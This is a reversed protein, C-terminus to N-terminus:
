KSKGLESLYRFLDRLDARPLPDVLGAPMLSGIMKTSASDAAAFQTEAGTGPDRVTTGKADRAVIYGIAVKGDKGTVEMAEYSEKIERQPELVTGIIFDLPQGSGIADLAPGITGGKGDISHCTICALEARQFIAAGRKADGNARVEAVLGAVYEPTAKLLSNGKLPPPPAVAPASKKAVVPPALPEQLVKLRERWEPKWDAAGKALLARVHPELVAIATRAGLELFKDHEPNPASLVIPVCEPSPLNGAAVVAALRVRPHPDHALDVLMEMARPETAVWRALLSAAYARANPERAKALKALLAREPKGHAEFVGIAEWWAHESKSDDPDLRPWWAWLEKVVEDTPRDALERKTQERVWREPSRLNELLEAVPVGAIPPPQM